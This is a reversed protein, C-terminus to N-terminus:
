KITFNGWCRRELCLGSAAKQRGKKSILSSQPSCTSAQKPHNVLSPKVSVPAQSQPQNTPKPPSTYQHALQYIPVKPYISKMDKVHRIHHTPNSASLERVPTYLYPKQIPSVNLHTTSLTSKIHIYIYLHNLSIHSQCPVLFKEM